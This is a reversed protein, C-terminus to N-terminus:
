EIAIHKTSGNKALDVAITRFAFYYKLILLAILSIDFM